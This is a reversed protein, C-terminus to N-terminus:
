IEDQPKDGVPLFRCLFRDLVRRYVKVMSGVLLAAIITGERVGILLHACILGVVVAIAAMTVDNIVRVVGFEFRCKKTIAGVFSDGPLMVVGGTVSLYAGMGLILCAIFVTFLRLPYFSPEYGAFLFNFLDICYGFPIIFILQLLLYLWKVEKRLIFIQLTILILNNIITWNGMTLQPLLRWVTYPISAIPSVGIDAKTFLSIGLATVVLGLCFVLYRHLTEKRSHM